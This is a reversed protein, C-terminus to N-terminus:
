SKKNDGDNGMFKKRKKGRFFCYGVFNFYNVVFLVEKFNM